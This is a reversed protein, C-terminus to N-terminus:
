AIPFRKNRSIQFSCLHRPLRYIILFPFYTHLFCCTMCVWVYCGVVLLSRPPSIGGERYVMKIMVGKKGWTTCYIYRLLLDHRHGFCNPEGFRVTNVVPINLRGMLHHEAQGRIVNVPFADPLRQTRTAWSRAPVAPFCLHEGICGRM